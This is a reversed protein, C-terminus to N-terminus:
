RIIESAQNLVSEPIDVNRKQAEKFNIQIFSEDSVVPTTGAKEGKLVQNAIVASKQGTVYPNINVGFLSSYGDYEMLAGGMPIDHRNAFKIMTLFTDPTVSFVEAISLIADFDIEKTEYEKFINELDQPTQAPAEILTIGANQAYPRLAELQPYCVPYDSSYPLLMIKIDPFIELMIDFRKLAMDPGPYRVGTLNGGPERVSNVLDTDEINTIAFIVPIDTGKTAEKLELAAETPYCFILDVKDEVFKKSFTKYDNFDSNTRLIEYTINQGEIYGLKTMESMFGEATDYLYDLGSLIGVRFENQKADGGKCGSLVFIMTIALTLALIQKWNKSKKTSKM